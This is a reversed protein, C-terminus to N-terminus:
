NSIKHFEMGQFKASVTELLPM